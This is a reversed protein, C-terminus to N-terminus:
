SPLLLGYDGDRRRYLVNLEGEDANHFLYFDHGILELQDIAENIHMPKMPFRKIRVVRHEFEDDDFGNETFADYDAIATTAASEAPQPSAADANLPMSSADAVGVGRRGRSRTRKDNFRRAQTLLKDIAADIAKAPEADRVESRLIHRGTQLTLQATTIEAGTRSTETRLELQADVVHNAIKDLKAMKRDIFERMGDTVKTGNARIHLDM